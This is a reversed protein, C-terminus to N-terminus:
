LEGFLLYIVHIANEFLLLYMAVASPTHLFGSIIIQSIEYFLM